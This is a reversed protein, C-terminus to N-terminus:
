CRWEAFNKLFKLGNKQSKEPHFQVAAINDRVVMASFREIYETELVTDEIVPAYYSHVFYFFDGDKLGDLLPDSKLIKVNNWGMHPVKNLGDDPFRNVDGKFYGLGAQEGFEFSRTFLLQVGVCIGLFPRGKDIFEKIFEVLGGYMLGKMCDGFAGVGPLIVRDANIIDEPLNSIKADFGLSKLAN